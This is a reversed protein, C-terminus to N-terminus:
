AAIGDVSCDTAALEEGGYPSNLDCYIQLADPYSNGTWGAYGLRLSGSAGAPRNTLWVEVAQNSGTKRRAGEAPKTDIICQGNELACSKILFSDIPHPGTLNAAKTDGIDPYYMVILDSRAMPRGDITISLNIFPMGVKSNAYACACLGLALLLLGYRRMPGRKWVTM